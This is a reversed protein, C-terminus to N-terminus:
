LIFTDRTRSEATREILGSNSRMGSTLHKFLETTAIVDNMADHADPLVVEARACCTELKYHGTGESIEHNWRMRSLWMTDLSAKEVYKFLEEGCFKFAYDLFGIDFQVNHGLLIPKTTAGGKINCAKCHLIVCKVMEQITMGAKIRDFGIQHYDMAAPHYELNNYGQVCTKFRTIEKFNDIRFGLLAIQVIPAKTPDLGGTEVDFTIIHHLKENKEM